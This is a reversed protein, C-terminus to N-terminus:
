FAKQNNKAKEFRACWERRICTYIYITYIYYIYYIYVCIYIICTYIYITYIYYIYYTHIYTHTHTYIYVYIYICIYINIYIYLSLSLSYVHYMCVLVVRVCRSPTNQQSKQDPFVDHLGSFLRCKYKKKCGYGTTYTHTHTHSLTLSHSLVYMRNTRIHTKSSSSSYIHGWAPVLVYVCANTPRVCVARM